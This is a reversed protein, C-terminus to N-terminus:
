EVLQHAFEADHLVNDVDWGITGRKHIEIGGCRGLETTIPYEMEQADSEEQIRLIRSYDNPSEHRSQHLFM